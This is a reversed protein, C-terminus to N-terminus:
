AFEWTQPIQEKPGVEGAKINTLIEPGRIWNVRISKKPITVM